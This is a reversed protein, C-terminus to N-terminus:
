GDEWMAEVLGALVDDVELTAGPDAATLGPEADDDWM